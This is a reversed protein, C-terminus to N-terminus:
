HLCVARGEQRGCDMWLWNCAIERDQTPHPSPFSSPLFPLQWGLVSVCTNQKCITPNNPRAMTVRHQSATYKLTLHVSPVTTVTLHWVFTGCVCTQRGERMWRVGGGGLGVVKSTGRLVPKQKAEQFRGKLFQLRASLLHRIWWFQSTPWEWLFGPADWALTGQVPSHVRVAAWCCLAVVVPWYPSCFLIFFTTSLPGLVPFNYNTM